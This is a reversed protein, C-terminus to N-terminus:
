WRQAARGRQWGRDDDHRRGGGVGGGGGGGGGGGRGTKGATAWGGGPAARRRATTLAAWARKAAIAPRVRQERCKAAARRRLSTTFAVNRCARFDTTARETAL